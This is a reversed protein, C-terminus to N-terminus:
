NIQSKPPKQQPEGEPTTLGLNSGLWRHLNLGFERTFRLKATVAVPFNDDVSERSTHDMVGLSLNMVNEYVGGTILWDTFLVPIQHPDVIVVKPKLPGEDSM